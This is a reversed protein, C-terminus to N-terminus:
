LEKPMVALAIITALLIWALPVLYVMARPYDPTPAQRALASLFVQEIRLYLFIGTALASGVFGCAGALRFRRTAIVGLVTAPILGAATALCLMSLKETESFLLFPWVSLIYCGISAAVFGTCGFLMAADMDPAREVPTDLKEDTRLPEFPM